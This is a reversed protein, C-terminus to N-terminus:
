NDYLSACGTKMAFLAFIRSSLGIRYILHLPSSYIELFIRLNSNTCIVFNRYIGRADIKKKKIFTQNQVM